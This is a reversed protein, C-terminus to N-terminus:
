REAAIIGTVHRGACTVEESGDVNWVFAIVPGDAETGCAGPELRDCEVLRGVGKGLVISKKSGEGLGAAVSAARRMPEVLRSLQFPVGGRIATDAFADSVYSPVNLATGLLAPSEGYAKTVAETHAQLLRLARELTARMRLAAEPTGIPGQGNAGGKACWAELERAVAHCEMPRWMSLAVHRLGQSVCNCAATWVSPDYSLSQEFEGKGEDDDGVFGACFLTRTLLVFGLEELSVEAMRWQQRQTM